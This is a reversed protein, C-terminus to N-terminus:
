NAHKNLNESLWYDWEETMAGLITNLNGRVFRNTIQIKHEVVVEHIDEEFIGTDKKQIM